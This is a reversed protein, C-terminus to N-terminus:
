ATGFIGNDFPQKVPNYVNWEAPPAGRHEPAHQPKTANHPPIDPSCIASQYNDTRPQRGASKSNNSGATSESSSREANRTSKSYLIKM